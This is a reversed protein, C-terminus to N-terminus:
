PTPLQPAPPTSSADVMVEFGGKRNGHITSAKFKATPAQWQWTDSFGASEVTVTAQDAGNPTFTLKLDRHQWPDYVSAFRIAKAQASAQLQQWGMLKSHDNATSVGIVPKFATDALLQFDCNAKGKSLRYRGQAEDTPQLKQGQMLWTVEVPQPARVDDLVLLYDGKVWIFTRRFLDLAPRSKGTAKDKYALYSGSAEGEIVNVDGANKFATIRGQRTMDENSPQQWADGEQRGQAAQGLGNILITNEGSSLKGPKEPYRDTEAVFDGEDFLTFSNADPHDHAVTIYPLAGNQKATPRWANYLYGGMPGCKFMAAVANDNWNDRLIEMGLDPFFATTPLKHYDGGQISPDDSLISLWAYDEIGFKHADITLAHRLGDMVDAQHNMAATKLFFPHVSIVTTFTDAFHMSDKFGPTAVELAYQGVNKYFPADLYKTGICEDSAEFAMGLAGASSGYGPGEHQSGDAPLWEDMWKIEKEVEGLLWQEDPKGDTAALTALTLGWDRFWRHNYEPKGRWYDGGPNKGLHGGYYMARAHFILTKRFQERFTPDLDNYLWDYMLSAGVMTFSATTDSNPEQSKGEGNTTWDDTSNLWTLFQMCTDFSQKDGTLVYHMAVMPMKFLGVEQGWGAGLNHDAPVKCQPLYAEMLDHYLKGQPSNYFAKLAPIRDATFLLRPHKGAVKDLFKVPPGTPAPDQAPLVFFPSAIRGDPGPKGAPAAAAMGAMLGVAAAAALLM